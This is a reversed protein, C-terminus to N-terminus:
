LMHAWLPLPEKLSLRPSWALSFRRSGLAGLCPSVDMPILITVVGVLIWARPKADGLSTGSGEVARHSLTAGLVLGHGRM